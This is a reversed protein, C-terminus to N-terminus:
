RAAGAGPEAAAQGAPGQLFGVVLRVLANEFAASRLRRPDTLLAARIPGLVAHALVYAENPDLRRLGQAGGYRREELLAALALVPRELAEGNGSSLAAVMLERRAKVRGGFMGLLSRVAARARAAPADGPLTSRRRAAALAQEIENRALAALLDHKDAFYQYITGVSFGSVEALRNTTFGPLGEAELVRM